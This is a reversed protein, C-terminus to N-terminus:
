AWSIDFSQAKLYKAEGVLDAETLPHDQLWHAPFTLKLHNNGAELNIIPLPRDSRDRHLLIALRLVVILYRMSSDLDGFNIANLKRRHGMVMTALSKQTNRAFGGIDAHEIVYAGHKQYKAHSIALGIEHLMCSWALLNESEESEIGWADKVAKYLTKATKTVRQAQKKDVGFKAALERASEYRFDDRNLRGVIDYLVGERLAGDSVVMRDISLIDFAAYLIVLGGPFVARRNESLGNLNINDIHAADIIHDRMSKLAELTIVGDPEGMQQCVSAIANISGSAGIAQEWQEAHFLHRIAQLQLEADILAKKWTKKSIIGGTFYNEGYRVCGMNLSEGEEAAYGQGLIFETSGGGIDVVLRKDSVNSVSHAVGHYILRAEERGSIIEIKHGLAKEAQKLFDGSNKARRLSNTGVARFKDQPIDRVRQGIRELAELAYDMCHQTFRNSADFGKAMRTTEKVRDLIKLQGNSVEAIILHFSNSGLDLAGVINNSM